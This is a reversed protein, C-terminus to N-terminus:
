MGTLPSFSHTKWPDVDSINRLIVLFPSPQNLGPGGALVVNSVRDGIVSRKGRRDLIRGLKGPRCREAFKDGLGLSGANIKEEIIADIIGIDCATFLDAKLDDFNRGVCM